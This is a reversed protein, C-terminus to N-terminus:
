VSKTRKVKNLFRGMIGGKVKPGTQEVAFAGHRGTVDECLPPLDELALPDKGSTAIDLSPFTQKQQAQWGYIEEEKARLDPRTLTMRLTM